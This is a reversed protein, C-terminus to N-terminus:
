LPPTSAGADEAKEKSKQEIWALAMDIQDSEGRTFNRGELGTNKVNSLILRLGARVNKSLRITPENATM